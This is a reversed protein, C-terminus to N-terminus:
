NGGRCLTPLVKRECAKTSSQGVHDRSVHDLGLHYICPLYSGLSIAPMSSAGLSTPRKEEEGTCPQQGNPQSPAALSVCVGQEAKGHIVLGNGACRFSRDSRTSCAQPDPSMASALQGVAPGGPSEGWFVM